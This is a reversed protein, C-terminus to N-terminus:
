HSESIMTSPNFFKTLLLLAVFPTWKSVLYVIATIPLASLLAEWIKMWLEKLIEDRERVFIGYDTMEGPNYWLIHNWVIFLTYFEKEALTKAM